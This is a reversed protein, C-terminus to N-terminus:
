KAATVRWIRNGADDAVLLGGAADVIVGAPRGQAEGKANLFGTLVDVPKAKADPFGRANFPVYIVKYGSPPNRNWSGHQGIFAGNAFNAGLKAGNAFALGLSATHAGLAYNPRKVYQQLDPRQPQVRHDTMRWYFWPWGYHGGFDVTALYDPPIDPGLQDRENVTTWLYGSKPEYALGNPNRLGATYIRFTKQKPFVELVNARYEESKLGNEGINSNSGVTVLLTKKDPSAIVNRTWHNNPASSPLPVIREGKATIKNDGTKYPFAMLSDTNAIYLTNDVLEMGYPSNLGNEATLLVSRMDVTGDGDSDRLLTIRNASVDSGNASKMIKRAIWDAIGQTPRAPQTSEAVLVDGNPLLKMWRPHDLDRAFEAVQLGPAAIPKANGQWGTVKAIVISPFAEQQIKTLDPNPGYLKAIDIESKAPTSLYWIGGGLGVVVLGSIIKAHTRWNM